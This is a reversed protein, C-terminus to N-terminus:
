TNIDFVSLFRKPPQSILLSGINPFGEEGNFITGGDESEVETFNREESTFILKGGQNKYLESEELGKEEMSEEEEQTKRCGICESTLEIPKRKAERINISQPLFVPQPFQSATETPAPSPQYTVPIPQPNKFGQSSTIDDSKKGKLREKIHTQQASVSAVASVYLTFECPVQYKVSIKTLFNTWYKAEETIKNHYLYLSKYQVDSSIQSYGIKHWMDTVEASGFGRVTLTKTYTTRSYSNYYKISANCSSMQSVNNLFVYQAFAKDKFLYPQISSNTFIVQDNHDYCTCNTEIDKIYHSITLSALYTIKIEVDDDEDSITQSMCNGVKAVSDVLYQSYDNGVGISCFRINNSTNYVQAIVDDSNTYNSCTYLYVTRSYEGKYSIESAMKVATYIDISTESTTQLSEIWTFVQSISESSYKVSEQSYYSVSSGVTLINFYCDNPLSNFFSILSRKVKSLRSATMAQSIEIVFIFEGKITEKEKQYTFNTLEQTTNGELVFKSLEEETYNNFEPLLHIMLLWDDKYLPHQSLVFNSEHMKEIEYFLVFDKELTLKTEWVALFCDEEQSITPRLEHTPNYIRTFNSESAITLHFNWEPTNTNNFCTLNYNPTEKWTYNNFDFQSTLTSYLSFSWYKNAFISLPQIISYKIIIKQYASVTGVYFKVMNSTVSTSKKYDADEEADQVQSYQKLAEDKDIIQLTVSRDGCIAEFNDIITSESKSFYYLLETDTEFDNDYELVHEIQAYPGEIYVSTKVRSLALAEGQVTWLGSLKEDEQVTTTDLTNESNSSDSFTWARSLILSCAVLILALAINKM